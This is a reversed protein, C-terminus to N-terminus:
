HHPGPGRFLEMPSTGQWTTALQLALRTKGTGGPGTLTLLRVDDRSLLRTVEAIEQERGILPTLQVPLDLPKIHEELKQLPAGTPQETQPPQRSVSPLAAHPTSASLFALYRLPEAFALLWMLSRKIGIGGLRLQNLM